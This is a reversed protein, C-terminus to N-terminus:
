EEDKHAIALIRDSDADWPNLEYDGYWDIQSFGALELLLALESQHVYRLDFRSRTRRLEGTVSTQDYWILTDIVQSETGSQRHGWKDITTGDEYKWSGELHTTNLLHNLQGVNPNLTDVVLRGSTKLVNWASSIMDRQRDQSTLHMISNLSAIILGFPRGSVDHLDAMDGQVLTVDAKDDLHASAANLMAESSDLGVVRHGADALPFLIRGTGCGLELIPDEGFAVIELLFEVDDTYEAHELDYLQVIDAYPDDSPM